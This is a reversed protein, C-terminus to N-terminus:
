ITIKNVEEKMLRKLSKKDKDRLSTQDVTSFLMRLKELRKNFIKSKYPKYPPPSSNTYASMM